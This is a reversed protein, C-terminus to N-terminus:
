LSPSLTFIDKGTSLTMSISSLGTTSNASVTFIRIMSLPSEYAISSTIDSNYVSKDGASKNYYKKENKLKPRSASLTRPLRMSPDEAARADVSTNLVVSVRAAECSGLLVERLAPCFRSTRGVVGRSADSFRAIRSDMLAVIVGYEVVPSLFGDAIVLPSDRLVSRLGAPSPASRSDSADPLALKSKSLRLLLM